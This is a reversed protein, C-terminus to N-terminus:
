RKLPRCRCRRKRLIGLNWFKHFGRGLDRFRFEDCLRSLGSFNNNKITVAKDDVAAVFDQFSVISVQSKLTYPFTIFALNDTFLDSKQVLIRGSIEVRQQPHILKVKAMKSFHGVLSIIVKKQFLIAFGDM